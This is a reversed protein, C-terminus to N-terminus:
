NLTSGSSSSSGPLHQGTLHQFDAIDERMRAIAEDTLEKGREGQLEANFEEQVARACSLMADFAVIGDTPGPLQIFLSIGPYEQTAMNSPDFIGPEVISAVSFIPAGKADPMHYIGYRGHRLGRDIFIDKLRAGSFRQTAAPVRLAVIKRAVRPATAAASPRPAMHPRDSPKPGPPLDDVNITPAHSVATGQINLPQTITLKDLAATSLAEEMSLSPPTVDPSHVRVEPLDDLSFDASHTTIPIPAERKRVVVPESLQPAEVSRPPLADDSVVRKRRGQLYILLLALAGAALLIWRLESM